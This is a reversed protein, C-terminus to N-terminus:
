RGIAPTADRSKHEASPWSPASPRAQIPASHRAVLAAAARGRAESTLDPYPGKGRLARAISDMRVEEKLRIGEPTDLLRNVIAAILAPKKADARIQAELAAQWRVESALASEMRVEAVEEALQRLERPSRKRTFFKEAAAANRARENMTARHMPRPPLGLERRRRERRRRENQERNHKERAKPTSRRANQRVNRQERHEAQYRRAKEREAPDQRRRANQDRAAAQRAERNRQYYNRKHERVRDPNQANWVQRRERVREPHKAKWERVREREKARRAHEARMRERNRRQSELHQRRAREPHAAKYKERYQRKRERQEESRRKDRGATPPNKSAVRQGQEPPVLGDQAAAYGQLSDGDRPTRSLGPMATSHSPRSPPTLTMGTLHAGSGM